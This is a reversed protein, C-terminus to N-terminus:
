SNLSSPWSLLVQGRFKVSYSSLKALRQVCEQLLQESERERERQIHELEQVSFQRRTSIMVLRNMAANYVYM